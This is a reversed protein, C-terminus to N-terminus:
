ENLVRWWLIITQVWKPKNEFKAHEKKGLAWDYLLFWHEREKQEKTKDCMRMHGVIDELDQQTPIYETNLQQHFKQSSRLPLHEACLSCSASLLILLLFRM